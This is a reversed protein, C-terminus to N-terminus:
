KQKEKLETAVQEFKSKWVQREERTDCRVVTSSSSADFRFMLEQDGPEFFAEIEDVGRINELNDLELTFALCKLYQESEDVLECAVLIDSLLIVYLNVNLFNNSVHEDTSATVELFGDFVFKRYPKLISNRDQESLITFLRKLKKRANKEFMKTNLFNSIALVAELAKAINEYDENSQDTNKL